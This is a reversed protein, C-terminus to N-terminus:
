TTEKRGKFILKDFEQAEKLLDKPDIRRSGDKTVAFFATGYILLDTELQRRQAERDLAAQQQMMYETGTKPNDISM